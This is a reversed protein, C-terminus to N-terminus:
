ARAVLIDRKKIVRDVQHVLQNYPSEELVTLETAAEVHDIMRERAFRTSEWSFVLTGGPPLLSSWVPLAEDLLDALGGRHQIGYPLDTVILHPQKFGGLLEPAQNLEGKAIWCRKPDSKKNLTFQWRQAKLKKLREEKMDYSIRQEQAFQKLFVATAHANKKNQEIGIADAGLTLAAFLTTGGGALPDFVRLQSWPKHAFASSFRAVNLMFQTLLENTKGKYRRATLLDHPFTPAFGTEIPQLFPGAVDAIQDYFWFFGSGMALQGLTMLQTDDLPTDLECLLYHQGGIEVPQITTINPRISSLVLEHPALDVALNAYQTSRQPAIQILLNQM